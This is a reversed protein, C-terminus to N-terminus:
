LSREGNRGLAPRAKKLALQDLVKKHDDMARNIRDVKDRTVVDATLKGEIEGLRRDNADKFAEFAEMFEDFAAGVTEPVTKIELAGSHAPTMATQESM